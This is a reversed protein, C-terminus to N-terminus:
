KKSFFSILTKTPNKCNKSYNECFNKRVNQINQKFWWKDVDNWIENVKNAISQASLHVIGNDVLNQYDSKVSERLHDFGKQWFILTPINHSFNELMGSTDYTHIILRSEAILNKINTRGDDIKISKDFDFWRSAENLKINSNLKSLRITLKKKPETTLESIFKKQDEFYNHFESHVDWTKVRASQPKEILLLGGKNNYSIKEGTTKFNFMPIYKSSESKWGWTLFKDATQEEPRPYDYRFTFYNNGHQGIYYKTGSEVKRATWLKFVEDTNFNNSTFIFKPSKPWPLKDVIKKLEYFGELYCIPFLEFLLNRIVNELDDESKKLFKKTLKERLLKNTRANINIELRKWLQPYQGLSLELKILQNTSLYTSILFADHDKVLKRKIKKYIKFFYNKLNIKSQSNNNSTKSELNQFFYKIEKDNIYHIPIKNNDILNLIKGNLINNWKENNFYDFSSRLDPTSLSCYDSNYLTTGSIEYLELCQKLTYTRNLLLQLIYKLWPGLIIQWFRESHNTNFNENLIECLEALIKERLFNVKILDKDKNIVELGYPKSVIADMNKWIHKRDYLRCWEGLFIVPQDFKWTNEDETTILYRKKKIM